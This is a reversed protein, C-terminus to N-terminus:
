QTLAALTPRWDEGGAAKRRAREAQAATKGGLLSEPSYRSEPPPLWRAWLSGEVGHEDAQADAYRIERTREIREDTERELRAGEASGTLRPDARRGEGRARQRWRTPELLLGLAQQMWATQAADLGHGRPPWWDEEEPEPRPAPGAVKHPAKIDVEVGEFTMTTPVERLRTDAPAAEWQAMAKRTARVGSRAARSVARAFADVRARDRGCDIGHARRLRQLKKTRRARTRCAECWGGRETRAGCKCLGRGRNAKRRADAREGLHRRCLGERFAAHSCGAASCPAAPGTGQTEM